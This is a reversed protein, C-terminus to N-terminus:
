IPMTCKKNCMSMIRTRLKENYSLLAKKLKLRSNHDLLFGSRNENELAKLLMNIDLWKGLADMMNEMWITVSEDEIKKNLGRLFFLNYNLDKLLKRLDHLQEYREVETLMLIGEVKSLQKHLYKKAKNKCLGHLAYKVERKSEKIFGTDIKNQFIACTESSQLGELNIEFHLKKAWRKAIKNLVQTNRIQGFQIFLTKWPELLSKYRFSKDISKIFRYFARLRKIGVRLDHLNREGPKYIATEAQRRARYVLKNYYEYILETDM